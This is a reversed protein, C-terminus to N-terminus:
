WFHMAAGALYAFGVGIVALIAFTIKRNWPDAWAKKWRYATVRNESIAQDIEAFGAWEPRQALRPDRPRRDTMEIVRLQLTNM